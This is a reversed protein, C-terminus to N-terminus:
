IEGMKQEKYGAPIAFMSDPAEASRIVTAKVEQFLKGNLYMRTIVPYGNMTKVDQWAETVGASAPTGKFAEGVSEMTAVLEKGNPLSAVEIVCLEQVKSGNVAVEWVKCQGFPSTESRGTAKVSRDIQPKDAPKSKGRQDAPLLAELSKTAESAQKSLAEMAAKDLKTYSKNAANLSYFTQDKFIQVQAGKQMEMRFRGNRTWMKMSQPQANPTYHNTAVSEVYTGAAAFAPLALATLAILAAKGTHM